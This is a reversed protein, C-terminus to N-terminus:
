RLAAMEEMLGAIENKAENADNIESDIEAMRNYEIEEQEENNQDAAIMAKLYVAAIKHDEVDSTEGVNALALARDYNKDILAKLGEINEDGYAKKLEVEENKAEAAKTREDLENLMATQTNSTKDDNLDRAIRGAANTALGAATLGRDGSLVGLITMVGGAARTVDAGTRKKRLKELQLAHLNGDGTFEVKLHNYNKQTKTVLKEYVDFSNTSVEKINEFYLMAENGSKIGKGRIDNKEIELTSEQGNKEIVVINNALASFSIIVAMLVTLIQNRTKM